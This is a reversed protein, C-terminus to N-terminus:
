KFPNLVPIGRGDCDGTNRTVLTLSHAQATALLLGDIVPLPRGIRDAEASLIGWALAVEADVPLVRDFFQSPLDSKLWRALDSRRRGDAMRAVGRQIEGLTIVSLALDAINQQELWQILGANPKPKAPESVVMTDLLFM